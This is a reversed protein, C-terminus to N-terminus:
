SDVSDAFLWAMAEDESYVIVVHGPAAMEHAMSTPLDPTVIIAIRRSPSNTAISRRFEAIVEQERLRKERIDVLTRFRGHRAGAAKMDQVAKAHDIGLQDNQANAWDGWLTLRMFERSPDTEIRHGPMDNVM